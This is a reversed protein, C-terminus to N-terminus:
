PLLHITEKLHAVQIGLLRVSGSNMLTRGDTSLDLTQHMVLGWRNMPFRLTLRSGESRGVVPGAAGTLTAAYHGPKTPWMVWSRSQEPKNAFRVKQELRLRGDAQMTGLSEVTFARRRGALVRVEGTGESRGAFVVEPVFVQEDTQARATASMLLIALM